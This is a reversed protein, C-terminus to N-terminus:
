WLAETALRAGEVMSRLKAWAIAPDVLPTVPDMTGFGCDPGAIVNERGVVEAYRVIRQEVLEPHEVYNTTSDIVGPIIVKGEPLRVDQFVKWEHEHRPNAGEVSLGDPRARLLIEIIDRLPVDRHHPAERNGWCVHLRMRDPPIDRVAYNLAEVHLEVVKSFQEDTLDAYRFFTRGGALDPCDLQLLFGARHIADYENKLVDALAYVFAEQSGYYRDEVLFAVVGPSAATVFSEEPETGQLAAKFTDLEIGIAEPDKWTVPETCVPRRLSGGRESRAAYVPFDRADVWVFQPGPEGLAEFGGIRDRVYQLYSVKGQEGDNVVDIGAERQSVVAAAVADRARAQLAIPDVATGERRDKYMEVLDIPRPLSGTHTTLMRDVSRRM